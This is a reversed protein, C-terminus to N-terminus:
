VLSHKRSAHHQKDPTKGSVNRALVAPAAAIAVTASLAIITTRMQPEKRSQGDRKGAITHDMLGWRSSLVSYASNKRQLRLLGTRHDGAVTGGNIQRAPARRGSRSKIM